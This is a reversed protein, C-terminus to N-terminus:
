SVALLLGAPNWTHPNSSLVKCEICVFQEKLIEWPVPCRLAVGTPPTPSFSSFSCCKGTAGSQSELEGNSLSVLM